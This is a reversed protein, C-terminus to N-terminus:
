WPLTLTLCIPFLTYASFFSKIKSPDCYCVCLLDPLCPDKKGSFVSSPSLSPDGARVSAAQSSRLPPLPTHHPAASTHPPDPDLSPSLPLFPPFSPPSAHEARRATGAPSVCSPLRYRASSYIIHTSVNRNLRLSTKLFLWYEKM